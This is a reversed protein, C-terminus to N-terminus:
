RSILLCSDLLMLFWGNDMVEKSSRHHRRESMVTIRPSSREGRLRGACVAAAVLVDEAGREMFLRSYYGTHIYAAATSIGQDDKWGVLSRNWAIPLGPVDFASAAITIHHQEGPM